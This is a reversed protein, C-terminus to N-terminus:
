NAVSAVDNLKLFHVAARFAEIETPFEPIYVVLDSEFRPDEYNTSVFWNDHMSAPLTDKFCSDGIRYVAIDFELCLAVVQSDSLHAVFQNTNSM